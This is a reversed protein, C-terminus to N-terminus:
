ILLFVSKLHDQSISKAKVLFFFSILLWTLPVKYSSRQGDGAQLIYLRLLYTFYTSDIKRHRRESSALDSDAKEM